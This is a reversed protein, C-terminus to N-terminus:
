NPKYAKHCPMCSMNLKGLAAKSGALDEKDSADQLAKANTAYAKSLKEYGAKDGQPPELGTISESLEAVLKTTKQVGKWDPKDTGLAKKLVNLAGTQGKHLKGMAQKITPSPEDATALGALGLIAVGAAMAACRKLIMTM